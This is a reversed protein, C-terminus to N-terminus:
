KKDRGNKGAKGLRVKEMEEATEEDLYDFLYNGVSGKKGLHEGRVEALTREIEEKLGPASMRNAGQGLIIVQELGDSTAVTVAADKAIRRVTKEIYQDATEAEKTYVIYINHYKMVEGPNGEVKYADYVLILTCKRYGQYNSLIDALKGRAAGIDKESLERLEEWSFIINYGDVLLYEQRGEKERRRREWKPDTYASGPERDKEKACVTVPGHNQKVPDPTRVYIADLEEQTLEISSHRRKPLTVEALGEEGTQDLTREMHMYEEVEDWDVVFGAGHACFVSGTPNALDLESDYGRAAVVEEQNHCLDYGKLTLSIRGRGGTYAIVDKQYGSLTSVPAIGTLVTMEGLTEPAEFKGFRNQIDTMARGVNESPLEIRFEYYPELLVSEAKKLGQRVARYTAQRFDGGETHKLHAKGSTLTIKMDTIVSGTLVGKHEKEELHTLVLRQWNRDLVDESCESDFQIGSGREGPELRLHVEAYHRLPEFHGVGEVPAAITEKYVISGEGFEVLVGFREKIIRQLIEIQVDGMLQVHIEQSKEIWVVHLEPEEEELLKLDRLMTHVNCDDPLIIRYTLVPELIPLESDKEAGLGQGPYTEALGTVACVKGADAESLLEYKEGSYVRIQNVKDGNEGIVDKVKLTGGTVKLYTLRNGQGDRAIKYVKAGFVAPYEKQMQYTCIGNMLEEVGQLHLASGFYCPFIKREAVLRRISAAAVSGKELYEEMTQEDCVAIEEIVEEAGTEVRGFDICGESFRSKLEALLKGCDTGEQDMKNVFLFVPIGYRTLLKWLTETHGQVGDAGSIVLVACDLVQLVREMEASFDVHGPTDLLTIETDKWTLVAQKSFITIGREREMEDTDLFADQHDVRGLNRIAGSQYLISESLTTKGADVHALLGVNLVRKGTKREQGSM